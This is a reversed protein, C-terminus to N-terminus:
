GGLFGLLQHGAKRGEFVLAVGQGVADVVHLSQQLRQLGGILGRHVLLHM